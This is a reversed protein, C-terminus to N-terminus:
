KSLWARYEKILIDAVEELNNKKTDIILDFHDKDFCDEVGYLNELKRRELDAREKIDEVIEDVSKVEEVRRNRNTKMDNLIREAATRPDLELFVNFIEPALYFGIRGDLVLKNHNEIYEKQKGDIELDISQDKQMYHNLEVLTMDREDAAERFFYGASMRQYGLLDAVRDATSSKGAGLRGHIYIVEKKEM